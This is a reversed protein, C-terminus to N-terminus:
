NMGLTATTPPDSRIPTGCEPCREKSVRLDYGCRICCGSRRRHRRRLGMVALWIIWIFVSGAATMEAVVSCGLNHSIPQRGRIGLSRHLQGFRVIARQVQLILEMRKRSPELLRRDAELIPQLVRLRNKESHDSTQHWEAYAQKMRERDPAMQEDLSRIEDAAPRMEREFSAIEDEWIFQGERIGVEWQMGDRDRYLHVIARRYSLHSVIVIAVTLLLLSVVFTYVIRRM